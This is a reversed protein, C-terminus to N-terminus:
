TGGSSGDDFDTEGTQESEGALGGQGYDSRSPPRSRRRRKRRKPEKKEMTAILCFILALFSASFIFTWILMAVWSLRMDEDSPPHIAFSEWPQIVVAAALCIVFNLTAVSRSRLAMSVLLLGISVVALVLVAIIWM